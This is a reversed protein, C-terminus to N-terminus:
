CPRTTRCSTTRESLLVVRLERALDAVERLREAVHRQDRRRPVQRPYGGLRVGLQGALAVGLAPGLLAVVSALDSVLVVLEAASGGAWATTWAGPAARVSM